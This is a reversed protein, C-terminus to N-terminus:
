YRNGAGGSEDTTRQYPSKDLLTPSDSCQGSTRPGVISGRLPYFSIQIIRLRQPIEDLINDSNHMTGALNAASRKLVKNM